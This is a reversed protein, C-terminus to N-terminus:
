KEPMQYVIRNANGVYANQLLDQIEDLVEIIREKTNYEGITIIYSASEKYIIKNNYVCIPNKIPILNEKDQSRVWLNMKDTREIEGLLDEIINILNDITIERNKVEYDTTTINTAKNIIKLEKDTLKYNKKM